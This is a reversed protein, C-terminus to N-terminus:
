VSFFLGEATDISIGRWAEGHVKELMMVPMESSGNVILTGAYCHKLAIHSFSNKLLNFFNRYLSYM